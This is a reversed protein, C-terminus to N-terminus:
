YLYKFTFGSTAISVRAGFKGNGLGAYFYLGGTKSEAILDAKGDGNMDGPSAITTYQNWGSSGILVKGGFRGNGLGPYLYLAGTSTQRAVIDAIGDNNLDGGGVIANYQNWGGTGIQVRGQVSLGTGNGAYYYLNGSTDRAILDGKGDQNLDGPGTVLNYSKSGGALGNTDNAAYTQYNYIHGDYNDKGVLDPYGNSTLANAFALYLQSPPFGGVDSTRTKGQFGGDGNSGYWYLTGAATQGIFEHKGYFPINGGGGLQTTYQWGDGVATPAAFSGDGNGHMLYLTGTGTTDRVALDPYGDGDYDGGGIIETYKQYGTGLLKKASLTGNGLGNYEYLSGDLTRALLDANGDGNLDGAGILEDYQQWGGHGITVPSGFGKGTGPYFVLDGSPTRALLDANGDGNLDGPIFLKSYKQFGTGVTTYGEASLGNANRIGAGSFLRLNGGLSLGLVDPVGDGTLDGPYLWDKVKEASDPYAVTDADVRDKYYTNGDLATYLFDSSGDGNFDSRFSAPKGDASEVPHPKVAARTMPKHFTPQPVAIRPSGM